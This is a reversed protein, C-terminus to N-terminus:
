RSASTEWGSLGASTLNQKRFKTQNNSLLRVFPFHSNQNEITHDKIQINKQETKETTRSSANINIRQKPIHNYYM